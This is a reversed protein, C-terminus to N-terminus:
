QKRGNKLADMTKEWDRKLEQEVEYEYKIRALKALFSIMEDEIDVSGIVNELVKLSYWEDNDYDISIEGEDMRRIIEESIVKGFIKWEPFTALEDLFEKEKM